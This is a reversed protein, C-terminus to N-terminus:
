RSAKGAKPIPAFKPKRSFVPAVKWGEEIAAKCAKEYAARGKEAYDELAVAAGEVYKGGQERSWRVTFVLAARRYLKTLRVYLVAGTADVFKAIAMAESKKRRPTTPPATTGMERVEPNDGDVAVATRKLRDVVKFKGVPHYGRPCVLKDRQEILIADHQPCVRVHREGTATSM